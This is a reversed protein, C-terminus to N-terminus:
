VVVPSSSWPGTQPLPITNPNSFLDDPDLEAKFLQLQRFATMNPFFQRAISSNRLDTLNVQPSMFTSRDPVGDRFEWLKRTKESFDRMRQIAQPYLHEKSKNVFMWDDAYSRFNRWPLSNMGANRTWQSQNGLPNFQFSPYMDPLMKESEELYDAIANIFEEGWWHDSIFDQMAYRDNGNEWPTLLTSKSLVTTDDSYEMPSLDQLPKLYLEKWFHTMDGSDVGTWLTHVRIYMKFGRDKIDSARSPPAAFLIIRMDRKNREEQDKAIFHLHKMVAVFTTRNWLWQARVMNTRPVDRDRIGRISYQTIVGWSGPSSGLVSRYLTANLDHRSAQVISGNALVMRFGVVHDLGSGHAHSLPGYASSQFHGGIGVNTCVGHPVSLSHNGMFKFFNVLRVGPGAVLLDDEVSTYNMHSVDLQM